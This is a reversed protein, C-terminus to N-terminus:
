ERKFSVEQPLLCLFYIDCSLHCLLSCPYPTHPPLNAATPSFAESLHWKLLSKIFFFNLDHLYLQPVPMRSPCFLIHQTQIQPTPSLSSDLIHYLTKSRPLPFSQGNESNSIILSHAAPIQPHPTSPLTPSCSNIQPFTQNSNSLLFNFHLGKTPM